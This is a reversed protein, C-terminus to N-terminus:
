AAEDEWGAEGQRKHQRNRKGGRGTRPRQNAQRVAKKAAREEPRYSARVLVTTVRSGRVTGIIGDALRVYSAGSHHHELPLWSPRPGPEGAAAVLAELEVKAQRRLLAPKVRELYRTIAHDTLRLNM